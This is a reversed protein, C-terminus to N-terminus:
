ENEELYAALSITGIFGLLGVVLVADIYADSKTLLSFILIIGIIELVLCDFALVREFNNRARIMRWACLSAGLALLALPAMWFSMM